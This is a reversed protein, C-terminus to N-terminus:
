IHSLPPLGLMALGSHLVERVARLLQLRAFMQGFLHPLPEGLIHVRNYYSSFDMSLQLLFKCVTETRATVHLGLGRHPLAAMHSLLDSFPLVSNFLLLWEGEDRLLSFDLSRVPPFAPYLGRDVGCGFSEFLTALRACNYMVFTGSKTGKTSTGSDDLALLLQSQPATGLMEFKITAVSLVKFTEVWDPDQALDTGHKLSSAKCAQRHRLEYYESATPADSTGAVKVPGCVLHQTLPARDDLKWWLLDLKQQQFEEACSVVHVVTCGDAGPDPAPALGQACDDACLRVAERLEALTALLEDTVVCSRLGPDYGAARGREEMPGELCVTGLVGAAPAAGDPPPVLVELLRSRLAEADARGAAVPWDVRLRQLLAAMRPDQTAPVRRVRVGHARLARALHDAVLVARLRGLRLACPDARLAPCHVLVRPPPAPGAAPAAYAPAAGLVRQFVAARQLQLELGAPTPTCRLVPAVGPGQLAALAQVLEPVQGDGCRAQLARRPALFDRTRLHRPRTEKLWVPGGPGLAANLAALTEELGLRGTAM